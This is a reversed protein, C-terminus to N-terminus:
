AANLYLQIESKLEDTIKLVVPPNPPKHPKRRPWPRKEKPTRRPRRDRRAKTLRQGYDPQVLNCKLDARIILLVKRPSCMIPVENVDAKPMALAGQCMLLQTAIMSAEAERHVLRLTRSRLKIKGLTRKYTRFFGESEWRWRYLQSALKLPLHQRDEVNTLLWVDKKKKSTVRILRGRIPPQGAQRFKNPWYYVIDECWHELLQESESYLTANSSMRILFWVNADVLARVVEYGVYGADTVILALKPLLPIMQILHTRESAKSGRGFRWCWPIGLMLHVISTNWIMPASPSSDKKGFTGLRRELEESRATQQRSGDCGLPIFGQYVLRADGFVAQIRSRLGIALSRLVPMPLRHVAKQFGSFSSGPRRRKPCCVVYFSRATEFMEPLSDGTCWTMLLVVYLLPHVDWRPQKRSRAFKRAQKFAAPALFERMAQPLSKATSRLRGRKGANM